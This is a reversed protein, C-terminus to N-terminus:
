TSSFRRLFCCPVVLTFVPPCTVTPFTIHHRRLPHHNQLLDSLTLHDQSQHCHTILTIIGHSSTPSRPLLLLLSFCSLLLSTGLAYVSDTTALCVRLSTGSRVCTRQRQVCHEGPLAAALSRFLIRSDAICSRRRREREFFACNGRFKNALMEICQRWEVTWRFKGTLKLWFGVLRKPIRLFWSSCANSYATIHMYAFHTKLFSM